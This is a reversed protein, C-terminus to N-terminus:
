AAANALTIQNRGADKADYLARDAQDILADTGPDPLGTAKTAPGIAVGISVTLPIATPCGPPTFPTSSIQDCLLRAFRTAADQGTNEMVILFEEGGVRALLDGPRLQAQLRRAAEMLVADGVPHGYRDNIQKFHDLDALMVAFSERTKGAQTAVRSLHPLAYRRNFLGTMPDRVADRLGSRVNDRLQDSRRKNRLQADLRLALEQACFEGQIVDDAGLDLAAIALQPDHEDTVAIIVAHRTASRARLESLLRLDPDDTGPSLCMVIADIPNNADSLRHMDETGLSRLMHPLHPTLRSRWIAGTSRRRTLIAVQATKTVPSGFSAASEAMGFARPTGDRPQWEDSQNRARLQRRIRAQLVQDDIPQSLVDDAGSALARLRADHDNQPTVVILPIPNPADGTRLMDRLQELTGDPLTNSALILDPRSRHLIADLGELRDAQIVTYYAASLQVKLM